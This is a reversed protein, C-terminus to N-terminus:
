YIKSSEFRHELIKHDQIWKDIDAVDFKVLRGCKIFNIKKQSTWAYITNKSIGLYEALENISLLRKMDIIPRHKISPNPNDM